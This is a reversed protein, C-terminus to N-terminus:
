EPQEAKTEADKQQQKELLVELQDARFMEQNFRQLLRNYVDISVTNEQQNEM